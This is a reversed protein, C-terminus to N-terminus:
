AKICNSFVQKFTKLAPNSALLAADVANLEIMSEIDEFQGVFTTSSGDSIFVQPYNGKIKSIGSLENRAEVESKADVEKYAVKSNDMWM